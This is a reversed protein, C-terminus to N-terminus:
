RRSLRNSRRGRVRVFWMIASVLAVFVIICFALALPNAIHM